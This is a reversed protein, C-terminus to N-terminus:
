KLRGDLTGQADEDILEKVSRIPVDDLLEVVELELAGRAPERLEDAHFEWLVRYVGPTPLRLTWATDEEMDILHSEPLRDLRVEVTASGERYTPPAVNRDSRSIAPERSPISASGGARPDGGMLASLRTRDRHFVPRMPIVPRDPWDSVVAFPEPFRALVTVRRTGGRGHNVFRFRGSVLLARERRYADYQALAERLSSAYNEVTERFENRSKESPRRYLEISGVTRESAQTQVAPLTRLALTREHALIEEIDLPRPRQREIRCRRVGEGESDLLLVEPNPKREDTEAFRQREIEVLERLERMAEGQDRDARRTRGLAILSAFAAVASLTLTAVELDGHGTGYAIALILALLLFAALVHGHDRALRHV